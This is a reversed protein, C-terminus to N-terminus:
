ISMSRQQWGLISRASVMTSDVKQYGACADAEEGEDMYFINRLNLLDKELIDALGYAINRKGPVHGMPEDKIPYRQHNRSHKGPGLLRYITAVQKPTVERRSVQAKRVLISAYDRPPDFMHISLDGNKLYEQLNDDKLKGHIAYRCIMEQIEM